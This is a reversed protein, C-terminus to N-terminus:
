REARFRQAKELLKVDQEPGVPCQGKEHAAGDAISETIEGVILRVTSRGIWYGKDEQSLNSMRWFDWVLVSHFGGSNGRM